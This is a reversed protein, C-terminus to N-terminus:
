LGGESFSRRSQARNVNKRHLVFFREQLADNFIPEETPSIRGGVTKPEFINDFSFLETLQVIVIDIM